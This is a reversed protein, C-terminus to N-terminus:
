AAPDRHRGPPGLRDPSWIDQDGGTVAAASGLRWETLSLWAFMGPTAQNALRSVCRGETELRRGLADVAEIAVRRPFGHAADREVVRRTGGALPSAVGDRLLHGAVLRCEDGVEFGAALFAETPSAIAYSYSARTSRLDDRVHWSRDRMDLCDVSIEEGRLRLRGQV